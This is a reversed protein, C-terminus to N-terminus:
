SVTLNSRRDTETPRSTSSRRSSNAVLIEDKIWHDGSSAQRLNPGSSRLELFATSLSRAPTECHFSRSEEVIDFVSVISDNNSPISKMNDMVFDRNEISRKSTVFFHSKKYRRVTSERVLDLLRRLSSADRQFANHSHDGHSSPPQDTRPHHTTGQNGRYLICQSSKHALPQHNWLVALLHNRLSTHQLCLQSSLM